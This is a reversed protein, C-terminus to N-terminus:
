PYFSFAPKKHVEIKEARGRIKKMFEVYEQPIKLKERLQERNIDLREKDYPVGIVQPIHSIEGHRMAARMENYLREPLAIYEGGPGGYPQGLPVGIMTEGHKRSEEDLVGELRDINEESSLSFLSRNLRKAGEIIRCYEKTDM